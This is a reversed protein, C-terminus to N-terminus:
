VLSEIAKFTNRVYIRLNEVNDVVMKFAKAADSLKENLDTSAVTNTSGTFVEKIVNSFDGISHGISVAVVRLSEGYERLIRRVAQSVVNLLTQMAQLTVKIVNELLLSIRTASEQLSQLVIQIEGMERLSKSRVTHILSLSIAQTATAILTQVNTALLLLVTQTDSLLKTSSHVTSTFGYGTIITLYATLSNLSEIVNFLAVNFTSKVGITNGNLSQIEHSVSLISSPVTRTIYPITILSRRAASKQSGAIAAALGNIPNNINKILNLTSETVSTMNGKLTSIIHLLTPELLEKVVSTVPENVEDALKNLSNTLAKVLEPMIVNPVSNMEFDLLFYRLSQLLNETISLITQVIGELCSMSKALDNGPLTVIGGLLSQVSDLLLQIGDVVGLLSYNLVTQIADSTESVIIVNVVITQILTQLAIQINIMPLDIVGVIGNLKHELGRTITIITEFVDHVISLLNLLNEANLSPLATLELLKSTAIHVEKFGNAMQASVNEVNNPVTSNINSNTLTNEIIISINSLTTKTTTTGLMVQIGIILLIKNM